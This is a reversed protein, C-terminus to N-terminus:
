GTACVDIFAESEESHLPHSPAKEPVEPEGGSSCRLATPLGVDALFLMRTQTDRYGPAQEALRRRGRVSRFFTM